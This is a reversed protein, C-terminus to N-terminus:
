QVLGSFFNQKDATSANFKILFNCIGFELLVLLIIYNFNLLVSSCVQLEDHGWAYKEYCTWAHLMAEKVKERREVSVPDDGVGNNGSSKIDLGSQKLGTKLTELDLKLQKLEEDM